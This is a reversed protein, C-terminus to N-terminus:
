FIGNTSTITGPFLSWTVPAVINTTWLVNFHSNTPASWTLLISGNTVVIGGIPVTNTAPPTDM